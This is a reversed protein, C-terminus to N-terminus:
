KFFVFIGAVGCLFGHERWQLARGVIRRKSVIVVVFTEPWNCRTLILDPCTHTHSCNAVRQLFFCLCWPCSLGDEQPTEHGGYRGRILIVLGWLYRGWNEKGDLAAVSPSKFFVLFVVLQNELNKGWINSSSTEPQGMVLHRNLNKWYYIYYIYLRHRHHKCIHTRISGGVHM